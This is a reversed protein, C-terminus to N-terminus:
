RTRAAPIRRAVRDGPLTPSGGPLQYNARM